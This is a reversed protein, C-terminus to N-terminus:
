GFLPHHKSTDNSKLPSVTGGIGYFGHMGGLIVTGNLLNVIFDNNMAPIMPMGSELLFLSIVVGPFPPSCVLAIYGIYMLSTAFIYARAGGM